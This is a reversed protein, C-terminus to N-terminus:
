ILEGKIILELCAYLKHTSGKVNLTALTGRVRLDFNSYWIDRAENVKTSGYKKVIQKYNM